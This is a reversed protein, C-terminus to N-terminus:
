ETFSVRRLSKKPRSFTDRQPSIEHITRKKIDAKKKALLEKRRIQKTNISSKYGGLADRLAQSTKERVLYEEIENWRGTQTDHKVFCGKPRASRAESIICSVIYSKDVKSTAAAYEAMKSKVIYRFRENGPHHYNRNGKEIIVDKEGPVFDEPLAAEEVDGSTSGSSSLKTNKSENETAEQKKRNLEEDKLAEWFAYTTKLRAASATIRYWEGTADILKVFGGVTSNKRIESVISSVIFSRELKTADNYERTRDRIANRYLSNGIHNYFRKGKGCVVDHDGPLFDDPLTTDNEKKSVGRIREEPKAVVPQFPKVTSSASSAIRTMENQLPSQQQQDKQQLYQQHQLLSMVLIRRRAASEMVSTLSYSPHETIQHSKRQGLSLESSSFPAQMDYCPSLLGNEMVPTISCSAGISRDEQNIVYIEQPINGDTGTPAKGFDFGM